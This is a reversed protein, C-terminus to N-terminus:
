GTGDDGRGRAYRRVRRYSILEGEEDLEAQYTALVDSASPIRRDEVVDVTVLWGEDSPEVGSVGEPEKGTLEAMQKLASRGATAATLRSGDAADAADERSAGSARSARSARPARTADENETDEDRQRTPRRDAM